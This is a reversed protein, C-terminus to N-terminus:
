LAKVREKRAKILYENYDELLDVTFKKIELEEKGLFLVFSNLATTYNDKGKISTESIWKKSFTIFDIPKDAEDKCLLRSVIENVDYNESDLHM